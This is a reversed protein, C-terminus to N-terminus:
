GQVLIYPRMQFLPELVITDVGSNAEVTLWDIWYIKFTYYM